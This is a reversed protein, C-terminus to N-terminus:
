IRLKSVARFIVIWIETRCSILSCKRCFHGLTGSVPFIPSFGGVGQDDWGGVSCYPLSNSDQNESTWSEFEAGHFAITYKEWDRKEQTADEKITFTATMDYSLHTVDKSLTLTDGWSITKDVLGISKDSSDYIEM